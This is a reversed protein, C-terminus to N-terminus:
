TREPRPLRDLWLRPQAIEAASPLHEPSEWVAALGAHGRDRVVARVFDAGRAYQAIKEDVGLLTSVVAKLGTASRRRADFARRITSVGPIVKRGVTDMLVDAHGELLSMLAGVEDLLAAQGPGAVADLLSEGEALARPLARLTDLLGEGPSSPHVPAVGGGGLVTGLLGDIRVRLHDALWPAAAFQVHHTREHLAVWLRFDRPDVGLAEEVEAVSPAVLYLVGAPGAFPDFQGLVRPGVLALAGGLEVSAATRAARDRVRAFMGSGGPTQVGGLLGAFTEANARVWGLRDVVRTDGLALRSRATDEVDSPLRMADLVLDTATDAAERLDSVLARAASPEPLRGPPMVERAAGVVAPVSILSM